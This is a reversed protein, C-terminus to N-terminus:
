EGVVVALDLAEVPRITVLEQDVVVARVGGDVLGLGREVSPHHLVVGLTGVLREPVPRWGLPEGQCGGPIRDIGVRLDFLDRLGRCGGARRSHAPPHVLLTGDSEVAEAIPDTGGKGAFLHLDHDLGAQDLDQV